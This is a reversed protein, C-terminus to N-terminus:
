ESRRRLYRPSASSSLEDSTSRAKRDQDDLLVDLDTTEDTVLADARSVDVAAAGVADQDVELGGVVDVCLVLENSVALVDGHLDSSCVGAIHVLSRDRSLDHGLLLLDHQSLHSAIGLGRVLGISHLLLHDLAPNM